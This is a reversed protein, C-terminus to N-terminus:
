DTGGVVFDSGGYGFRSIPFTALHDAITATEEKEFERLMLDLRALANWAAHAAHSLGTQPDFHDGAAEDLLHRLLADTYRARGHAVSVWGGDTYKKAGFTGVQGVAKLARAFEGLVLGLRNKGDDLKAGPQHQGIGHPDKEEAARMTDGTAPTKTQDNKLTMLRAALRQADARTTDTM